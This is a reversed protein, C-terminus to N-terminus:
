RGSGGERHLLAALGEQASRGQILVGGEATLLAAEEAEIPEEGRRDQGELLLDGDLQDLDAPLLVWELAVDAEGRELIAVLREEIAEKNLVDFLEQRDDVRWGDALRALAPTM